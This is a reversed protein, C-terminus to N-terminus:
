KANKKVNKWVCVRLCEVQKEWELKVNNCPIHYCTACHVVNLHWTLACKSKCLFKGNYSNCQYFYFQGWVLTQLCTEICLCLPLTTLWKCASKCEIGNEDNPVWCKERESEIREEKKYRDTDIDRESEQKNTFINLSQEKTITFFM